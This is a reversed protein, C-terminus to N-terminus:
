AACTLLICEHPVALPHKGIVVFSLSLYTCISVKLAHAVQYIDVDDILSPFLPTNDWSHISGICEIIEHGVDSVCEISLICPIIHTGNLLSYM